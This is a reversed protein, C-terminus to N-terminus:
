RCARVTRDLTVLRDFTLVVRARLVARRRLHLQARFPARADSAVIHGAVSFTAREVGAGSVTLAVVGCRGHREATFRVAPRARCSSGACNVLRHLRAALSAKLADYAPNTHQSELEYPDKRLDYLERDGNAYEAYKYHLTRIGDFHGAGPSNDILLDRGTERGRDRWFPLLSVGDEIRGPRANAADLITEADDVNM